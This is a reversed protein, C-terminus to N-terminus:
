IKLFHGKKNFSLFKTMRSLASLNQNAKSCLKLVHKHLKLNRDITIRLLKVDSSEWILDKEINAWVQEHKYGSFILRCKYTNLKMYNNEFWSIALMSKKERSKLVNEFSEDSIYTTINDAFNCIDVDKLFFFLNNLYNNFIRSAGRISFGEM